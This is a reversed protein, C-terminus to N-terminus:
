KIGLKNIKFIFRISFFWSMHRSKPINRHTLEFGTKEFIMEELAERYIEENKVPTQNKQLVQLVQPPKMTSQLSSLAPTKNKKQFKNPITEVEIKKRKKLHNQIVDLEPKDIFDSLLYFNEKLQDLDKISNSKLKELLNQLNIETFFQELTNSM